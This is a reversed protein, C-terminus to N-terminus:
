RKEFTLSIIYQSLDGSLISTDPCAHDNIFSQPTILPLMHSGGILMVTMVFGIRAYNYYERWIGM